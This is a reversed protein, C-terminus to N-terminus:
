EAYSVRADPFWRAGPMSPDVLVRAPDPPADPTLEAWAWVSSWFGPLDDVSWQWLDRYGEFARGSREEAWTLYRGVQSRERIDPPPTWLVDGHTM